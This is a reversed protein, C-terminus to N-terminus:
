LCNVTNGHSVEDWPWTTQQPLALAAKYDRPLVCQSMKMIMPVYVAQQQWSLRCAGLCDVEKHLLSEIPPYKLSIFQRWAAEM